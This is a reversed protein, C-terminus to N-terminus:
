KRTYCIYFIYVDNDTKKYVPRLQAAKSTDLEYRGMLSPHEKAAEGSSNITIFDPFGAVFISM